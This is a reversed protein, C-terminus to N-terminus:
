STSVSCTRTRRKSYVENGVRCCCCYYLIDGAGVCVVVRDEAEAEAEAEEAEEAEETEEEEKTSSRSRAWCGEEDVSLCCGRPELMM